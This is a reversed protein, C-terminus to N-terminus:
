AFRSFFSIIKIMAGAKPIGLGAMLIGLAGAKLLDGCDKCLRGTRTTREWGPVTPAAGHEM